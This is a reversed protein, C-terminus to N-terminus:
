LPSLVAQFRYTARSGLSSQQEPPHLYNVDVFELQVQQDFEADRPLVVNKRAHEEEFEEFSVQNNFHVEVTWIWLDREQDPGGCTRNRADEWVASQQRVMITAPKELSTNKTQRRGGPFLVRPFQRMEFLDLLANHVRDGLRTNQGLRAM